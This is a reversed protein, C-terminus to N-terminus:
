IKIKSRLFNITTSKGVGTQGVLMVIELNKVIDEIGKSKNM